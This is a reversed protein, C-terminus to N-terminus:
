FFQSAVQDGLLQGMSMPMAEKAHQMRHHRVALMVVVTLSLIMVVGAAAIAVIVGASLKSGPTEVSHQTRGSHPLTPRGSAVSEESAPQSQESSPGASDTPPRSQTPPSTVVVHVEPVFLTSEQVTFTDHSGSQLYGSSAKSAAM